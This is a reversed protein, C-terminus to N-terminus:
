INSLIGAQKEMRKDIVELRSNISKLENVIPTLRKDFARDIAELRRDFALDIAKEIEEM